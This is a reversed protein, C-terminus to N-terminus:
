YEVLRPLARAAAVTSQAEKPLPAVGEFGTREIFAALASRLDEPDAAAIKDLTDFAGDYYLRARVAKLGGLRSLDSLRVFELIAQPAIGTRRALAERGAPTRGAGLMQDVNSIGAAELRAVDDPDIGRFGRLLFSRRTTAIGQERMESALSALEGNGSFRFYLALGRLRLRSSGVEAAECADVYAQIDQAAAAEL